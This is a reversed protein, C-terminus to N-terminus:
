PTARCKFKAPAIKTSKTNLSSFPITESNVTDGTCAPPTIKLPVSTEAFAASSCALLTPLAIALCLKTTM